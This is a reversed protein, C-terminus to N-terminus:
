VVPNLAILRQAWPYNSAVYLKIRHHCERLCSIVGYRLEPFRSFEGRMIERNNRVYLWANAIVCQLETRLEQNTRCGGGQTELRSMHLGLANPTVGLTYGQARLRLQFDHDEFCFNPGRFRVDFGIQRMPETPGLLLASSLRVMRPHTRLSDNRLLAYHENVGDGNRRPLRRRADDFSEDPHAMLMVEGAIVDVDLREWDEFLRAFFSPELVVDDEGFYTYEHRALRLGTNRAHCVGLRERHRIIRVDVDVDDIVSVLDDAVPSDSHDDVVIIEAVFKSDAYSPLVKALASGRNYTPIVISIPHRAM